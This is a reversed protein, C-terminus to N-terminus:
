EGIVGDWRGTEMDYKGLHNGKVETLEYEFGVLIVMEDLLDKIFGEYRDNGKLIDYGEKRRLYPEETRTVVRFFKGKILADQETQLEKSSRLVDLRTRANWQATKQFGKAEITEIVDMHFNSRIKSNRNFEIPGTIGNASGEQFISCRIAFFFIIKIDFIVNTNYM